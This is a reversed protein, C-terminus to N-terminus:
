LHSGREIEAGRIIETLETQTLTYERVELLDSQLAPRLFERLEAISKAVENLSQAESFHANELNGIVIVVRNNIRDSGLVDTVLWHLRSITKFRIEETALIVEYFIKLRGDDLFSHCRYCRHRFCLM